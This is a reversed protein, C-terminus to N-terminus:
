SRTSTSQQTKIQSYAPCKKNGQCAGLVMVMVFFVTLVIILRKM